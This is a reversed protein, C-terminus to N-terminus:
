EEDEDNEVAAAAVDVLVLVREEGGCIEAEEKVGTVAAFSLVSQLSVGTMAVVDGVIAPVLWLADFVM